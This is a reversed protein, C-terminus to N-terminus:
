PQHPRTTVRTIRFYQAHPYAEAQDGLRLFCGIWTGSSQRGLVGRKNAERVEAAPHNGKVCRHTLDGRAQEEAPKLSCSGCQMICTHLRSSLNAQSAPTVEVQPHLDTDICGATPVSLAAARRSSTAPSITPQSYPRKTGRDFTANRARWLARRPRM